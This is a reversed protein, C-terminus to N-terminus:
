HSRQMVAREQPRKDVVAVLRQPAAVPAAQFRSRVEFQLDSQASGFDATRVWGQVALTYTFEGLADVTVAPPPVPMVRSDAKLVDRITQQAKGIDASMDLTVRFSVKRTPERSNNGIPGSFITSNPISVYRGDDTIVITRFLGIERVLGNTDGIAVAEGVRLPRLILLMVGSAVNSLTGQLALGIAIGAAGLLAIVSTTQVGFRNLVSVLAIALVGYRLLGCIFPKLTPDFHPLRDLAARALRALWNALMWGIILVVIASFLNIGGDLLIARLAPTDFQSLQM